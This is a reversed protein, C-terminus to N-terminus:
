AAAGSPRWHRGLDDHGDTATPPRRPRGLDDVHTTATPALRKIPLVVREGMRGRALAEAGKGARPIAQWRLDSRRTAPRASPPTHWHHLSPWPRPSARGLPWGPSPLPGPAVYGPNRATEVRGGAGAAWRLASRFAFSPRSLLCSLPPPVGSWRVKLGGASAPVGASGRKSSRSGFTSRRSGPGPSWVFTAFRPSLTVPPSPVAADAAVPIPTPWAGEVGVLPNIPQGGASGASPTRVPPPQPSDFRGFQGHRSPPSSGGTVV